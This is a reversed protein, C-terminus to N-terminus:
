SVSIHMIEDCYKIEFSQSRRKKLFKTIFEYKSFFGMLKQTEMRKDKILLM